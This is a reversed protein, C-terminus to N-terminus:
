SKKILVGKAMFSYTIEPETIAAIEEESKGKDEAYHRRQDVSLTDTYLMGEMVMTQGAANMPVFFAYDKFRVFIQKDDGADVNMWCGKKQCCENITAMIKTNVSDKDAMLALADEASIAGDVVVTSDGYVDWLASETEQSEQQNESSSCAALMGAMLLATLFKNKM